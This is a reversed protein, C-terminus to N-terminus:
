RAAGWEVKNSQTFGNKRTFKAYSVWSGGTGTIPAGNLTYSVVGNRGVKVFIPDTGSISYTKGQSLINNFVKRGGTIVQVFSSDKTIGITLALTDLPLSLSKENTVVSSDVSNEVETTAVQVSDNEDPAAGRESNELASADNSSDKVPIEANTDSKITEPTKLTSDTASDVTETTPVIVTNEESDVGRNRTTVYFAVIALVIIGGILPGVWNYSKKENQISIRMTDHREKEPDPFEVQLEKAFRDLLEEGDLSLYQAITRIYVRVYPIAPLDKYRSEEIAVLYDENFKLDEAVRQVSIRRTVRERHLLAGVTEKGYTHSETVEERNESSM